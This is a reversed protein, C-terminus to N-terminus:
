VLTIRKISNCCAKEKTQNVGKRNYRMSYGGATLVIYEIIDQVLSIVM